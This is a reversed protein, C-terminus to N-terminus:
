KTRLLQSITNEIFSGDNNIIGEAGGKVALMYYYFIDEGSNYPTFGAFKVSLSLDNLWSFSVPYPSSTDPPFLSTINIHNQAIIKEADSLFPETFSFTFTYSYAAASGTDISVASNESFSFIPFGDGTKGSISLLDLSNIDPSFSLSYNEGISIRNESEANKSIFVTYIKNWLWGQEPIFVLSSSNKWIRRGPTFPIISFSNEVSERDMVASFDIGVADKYKIQNLDNSVLPYSLTISNLATYVNVIEPKIVSDCCYYIIEYETEAPINEKCCIESSFSLIYATLNKWSSGPSINLETEDANWTLNYETEPQISFGKRVSDTDMQKSFSVKIIDDGKIISGSVPSASEAAPIELPSERYYFPILIEYEVDGGAKKIVTGSYNFTYRRGETMEKDPTFIMTNGEWSFTGDTKGRYDTIRLLSEASNKEPNFKFLVFLKEDKSIIQNEEAPNTEIGDSPSFDILFCGQFLLVLLIFFLPKILYSHTNERNSFLLILSCSSRGKM